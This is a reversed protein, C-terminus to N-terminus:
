DSLLERAIELTSVSLVKVGISRFFGRLPRGPGIEIVREAAAALLPMNENWLVPSCVQMALGDVIRAAVPEHFGGSHNSTVRSAREPQWGDASEKLLPRLSDTVPAMLRSHFPASVRLEVLRAGSLAPHAAIKEGARAVAGTEGAIVTQQASNVNAIDVGLETVLELLAEQDLGRATVALMAGTVTTGGDAAVCDQMLRGRQRSLRLAEATPLVGAAVLAAYEGLSHGGWCSDALDFHARLSELMALEVTLIAPQQFETQQLRPDDEFCLAKMDLDLTDSALEFVLRAQEFEDHFDRGMGTKQCGQGPFVVSTTM